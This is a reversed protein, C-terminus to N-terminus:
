IEEEEGEIENASRNNQIIKNLRDALSLEAVVGVLEKTAQKEVELPEHIWKKEDKSKHCSSCHPKSLRISYENMVFVEGCRWCITKKGLALPVQIKFNCDLACFYVANGSKFKIRKLKHIHQQLKAAM